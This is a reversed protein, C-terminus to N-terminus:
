WEWGGHSWGERETHDRAAQVPDDLMRACAGQGWKDDFGERTWVDGAWGDLFGDGGLWSTVGSWFGM